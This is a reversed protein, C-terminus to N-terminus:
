KLQIVMLVNARMGLFINNRMQKNYKNLKAGNSDDTQDKAM